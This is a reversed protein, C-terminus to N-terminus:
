VPLPRCFIHNVVSVGFGEKPLSVVVLRRDTVFSGDRCRKRALSSPSEAAPARDDLDSARATRVPDPLLAPPRAAAKAIRGSVRATGRVPLPLQPATRLRGGLVMGLSNGLDALRSGRCIMMKRPM